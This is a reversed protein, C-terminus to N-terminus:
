TVQFSQEGTPLDVLVLDGVALRRGRRTDVEGNVRVEGALLMARAHAGSEAVGVLKLLQGLRIPESVTVPQPGM